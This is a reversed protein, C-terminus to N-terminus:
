PAPLDEPKGEQPASPAANSGQAWIKVTDRGAAIVLRADPSFAVALVETANAADYQISQLCGPQVAAEKADTAQLLSASRNSTASDSKSSKTRMAWLM